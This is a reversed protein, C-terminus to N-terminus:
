YIRDKQRTRGDVTEAANWIIGETRDKTWQNKNKIKPNKQSEEFGSARKQYKGANLM